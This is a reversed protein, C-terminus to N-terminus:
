LNETDTTQSAAQEDHPADGVDLRMSIRRLLSLSPKAESGSLEAVLPVRQRHICLGNQNVYVLLAAGDHTPYFGVEIGDASDSM